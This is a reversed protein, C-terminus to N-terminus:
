EDRSGIAAQVAGAIKQCLSDTETKTPGEVMVRCIQQTGSYRVLVRGQDGLQNEAGRIAETVKELTSLAPKASVAVNLLSQPYVTMVRALQSLPQKQRNLAELLKLGSLLGDGTSHHDMLIIHGSDEGGLVAGTEVMKEMVYRDGVQSAAHSLGLSALAEKLGLNSMVTSVVTRNGIRDQAKLDSALIALVQDGTIPVGNEDVAILRDGDGDFALGLQAGRDVVERQLPQTHESGCGANINRGDPRAALLTVDAGLRRFLEPALQYTAGNSCDLVLKLGNFPSDNGPISTLLFDVYETGPREQNEIKGTQRIADIRNERDPSQILAEIASEEADSLKFGDGKFVKIGNDEFPNHSASIVVGAAARTHRSQFAVAPTPLVGVDWVDIGASCIGATVASALMPGSLRTDRGVVIHERDSEAKFHLAVAQGVKVAMDATMPHQNAVGRIGDTGFLKGM